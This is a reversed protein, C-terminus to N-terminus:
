TPTQRKDGTIQRTVRYLPIHEQKGSSLLPTEVVICHGLRNRVSLRNRVPQCRLLNLSLIPGSLKICHRLVFKVARHCVLRESVIYGAAQTELTM